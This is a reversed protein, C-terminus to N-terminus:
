YKIKQSIERCQSSERNASRKKELMNNKYQIFAMNDIVKKGKSDINVYVRKLTPRQYGSKQISPAEFTFKSRSESM